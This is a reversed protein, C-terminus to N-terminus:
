HFIARCMNFYHAEVLEQLRRALRINEDHTFLQASMVSVYITTNTLHRLHTLEIMTKLTNIILTRRVTGPTTNHALRQLLTCIRRLDFMPGQILLDFLERNHRRRRRM